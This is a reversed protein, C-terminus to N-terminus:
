ARRASAPRPAPATPRHPRPDSPVVDIEAEVQQLVTGTAPDEVTFRLRHSGPRHPTFRFEAGYSKAGVVPVAYTPDIEAHGLPDRPGHTPSAPRHVM